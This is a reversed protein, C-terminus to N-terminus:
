RVIRLQDVVLQQDKLVCAMQVRTGVRVGAAIGPLPKKGGAAGAPFACTVNAVTVQQPTISTVVGRVDVRQAPNKAGVCTGPQVLVAGGGADTQGIKVDTLAGTAPNFDASLNALLQQYPRMASAKLLGHIEGSAYVGEFRGVTDRGSAVDIHVSGSVKGVGKASDITGNLVLRAPGNLAAETSTAAGKADITAATLTGTPMTCTRLKKQVVSTVGVTASASKMAKTGISEAVAAAAIWLVAIGTVLVVTPKM